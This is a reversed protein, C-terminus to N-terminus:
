KDLVKANILEEPVVGWIRSDSSNDRNDGMVYYAHAPVVVAARTWGSLNFKADVYPEALRSDNLWVEGNRIEIRDGPLGILRKIYFKTRDLPYRFRVIDGRTLQKRSKSDLRVVRLVDGHKIGPLM